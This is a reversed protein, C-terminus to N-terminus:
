YNSIDKIECNGTTYVAEKFCARDVRIVLSGKCQEFSYWGEFRSLNSSNRGNDFIKIVFSKKITKDELQIDDIITNIEESCEYDAKASPILSSAILFPATIFALLTQKIQM